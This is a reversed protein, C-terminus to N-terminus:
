CLPMTGSFLLRVGVAILILGGLLEAKNGLCHGLQEGLHVGCFSFTFTILGILLAPTYIAIDLVSFSFGVALADVSTVIALFLLIKGGGIARDRNGNKNKGAKLAEYLMKSGLFMLVGFAIWHGLTAIHKLVCCGCLWGCIPMLMQALGFTLAIRLSYLMHPLNRVACGGALSVAFADMSLAVGIAIFQLLTMADLFIM